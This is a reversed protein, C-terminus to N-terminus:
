LNVGFRSRVMKEEVKRSAHFEQQLREQRTQPATQEARHQHALLVIAAPLEGNSKGGAALHMNHMVLAHKHAQALAQMAAVPDNKKTMANRAAAMEQKVGHFARM